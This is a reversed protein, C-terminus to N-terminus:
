LEADGATDGEQERSKKTKKAAELLFLLAEIGGELDIADLDEASVSDKRPGKRQPPQPPEPPGVLWSFMGRPQPRTHGHASGGESAGQESGGPVVGRSSSSSGSGTGRMASFAAITSENM